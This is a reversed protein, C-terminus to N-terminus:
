HIRYDGIIGIGAGSQQLQVPLARSFGIHHVVQTAPSGSSVSQGPPHRYLSIPSPIKIDKVPRLRQRGGIDSILNPKLRRSYPPQADAIRQRNVNSREIKRNLGQEVDHLDNVQIFILYFEPDVVLENVAPGEAQAGLGQVLQAADIKARPLTSGQADIAGIKDVAKAEPLKLITEGVGVGVARYAQIVSHLERRRRVGGALPIGRKLPFLANTFNIFHLTDEDTTPIANGSAVDATDVVKGTGFVVSTQTKRRVITCTFYEVFKSGISFVRHNGVKLIQPQVQVKEKKVVKVPLGAM